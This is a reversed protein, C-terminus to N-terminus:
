AKYINEIELVDILVRCLKKFSLTHIEKDLLLEGHERRLKSLLVESLAEYYSLFKIQVGGIALIHKKLLKSKKDYTSKDIFDDSANASLPKTIYPNVSMNIIPMWKRIKADRKANMVIARVEQAIAIIDEDTETPIGIIYCLKIRKINNTIAMETAGVLTDTTINKSIYKKIKPSGAEPSVTINHANSKAILAVSEDRLMDARFSSFTIEYGRDHLTRVIDNFSPHTALATGILTVRTIQYQKSKKEITNIIADIPHYLVKNTVTPIECFRCNFPCGRNVEVIFSEKFISEKHIIATSAINDSNTKKYFTSNTETTFYPLEERNEIALAVEKYNSEDLADFFGIFISKCFALFFDPNSNVAFGGAYIKANTLKENYIHIFTPILIEAPISVLAFDIDDNYKNGNLDVLIHEEDYFLVTISIYKSLVEYIYQWGLNDCSDKIRASVILITM